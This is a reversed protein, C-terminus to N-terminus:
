LVSNLYIRKKLNLEIKKRVQHLSGKLHNSLQLLNHSTAEASKYSLSVKEQAKKLWDVHLKLSQTYVYLDSISKNVQQLM